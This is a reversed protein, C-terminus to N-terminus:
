LFSKSVHEDFGKSKDITVGLLKVDSKGQRIDKFIKASM